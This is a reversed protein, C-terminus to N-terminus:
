RLPCLVTGRECFAARFADPKPGCYIIAQGQLPAGAEGKEPDVFRVRGKPFCVADAVGLLEQFWGTETANNVLVVGSSGDRIAQCFRLAFKDVLGSAYPPNMWIRGVPWEQALGDDEATFIRAARVAENAAASSAPDLDFGGLVARAADLIHGPTYWEVKGTNHAVHPKAAAKEAAALINTSVRENETELTDRWDAVLDEFEAEPIAAVKQSHASLKKDVGIDSLTPRNETPPEMVAGGFTDRGAMRVGTALGVTAKQEAILQGLRREARIRIEAADIELQRNKSQHAYARMAEARDRWDKAEDTSKAAAVAACAANYHVLGHPPTDAPIVAPINM